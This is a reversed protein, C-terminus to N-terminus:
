RQQFTASYLDLQSSGYNLVSPHALELAPCVPVSILDQKWGRPLTQHTFCPSCQHPAPFLAKVVTSNKLATTKSRQLCCFQTDIFM